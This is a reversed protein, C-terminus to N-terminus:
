GTPFPAVTELMFVYFSAAAALVLAHFVEHYGYIRPWLKPWQVAYAIAGLTYLVGGAVIWLMAAGARQVLQPFAAVGAWGMLVYIGALLRRHSRIVPTSLAIGVAALAWILTLMTIRWGDHLMVAVVPTYTGAIMIFINAHDIRRLFSRRRESWYPIHYLASFGLLMIMSLGYVLFAVTKVRDGHADAVLSVTGIVALVAGGAHLWGRMLPKKTMM